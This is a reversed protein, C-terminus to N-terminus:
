ASLNRISSPNTCEKEHSRRIIERLIENLEKLKAIIEEGIDESINEM